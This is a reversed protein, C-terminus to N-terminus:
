KGSFAKTVNQKLVDVHSRLSDIQSASTNVKSKLEDLLNISDKCARENEKFRKFSAANAHNISATVAESAALAQAYKTDADSGVKALQEFAKALQQDQEQSKELVM